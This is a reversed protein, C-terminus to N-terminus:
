LILFTITENKPSDEAHINFDGVFLAKDVLQLVDSELISVFENCFQLVSSSPLCYIVYLNPTVHNFRIHYGQYEMTVVNIHDLEMVSYHDRYM